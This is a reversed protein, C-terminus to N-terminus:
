QLIAQRSYRPGTIWVRDTEDVLRVLVNVWGGGIPQVKKETDRIKQPFHVLGMTSFYSNVINARYVTAAHVLCGSEGLEKLAQVPDDYIMGVQIQDGMNSVPRSTSFCVIEATTAKNFYRNQSTSQVVGEFKILMDVGTELILPQLDELSPEVSMNIRAELDTDPIDNWEITDKIVQVSMKRTTQKGVMDEDLMAADDFLPILAPDICNFVSRKLSTMSYEFTLAIVKLDDIIQSTQRDACNITRGFFRYRSTLRRWGKACTMIKREFRMYKANVDMNESSQTELLVNLTNKILTLMETRLQVFWSQYRRPEYLTSFTKMTTQYMLQENIARDLMNCIENYGLGEEKMGSEIIWESRSIYIMSQSTIGALIEYMIRFCRCHGAVKAVDWLYAHNRTFSKEADNWGGFVRIVELCSLNIFVKPEDMKKKMTELLKTFTQAESINNSLAVSLLYTCLVPVSSDILQQVNAMFMSAFNCSVCMVKRKMPEGTALKQIDSQLHLFIAEDMGNATRGDPLTKNYKGM